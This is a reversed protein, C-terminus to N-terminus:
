AKGEFAVSVVDEVGAAVLEGDRRSRDAPHRPGLGNGDFNPSAASRRRAALPDAMVPVLDLQRAAPQQRQGAPHEAGDVDLRHFEGEVARRQSTGGVAALTRVDAVFVRADGLGSSRPEAEGRPQGLGLLALVLDTERRHVPLTLFCREQNGDLGDVDTRFAINRRRGPNGLAHM